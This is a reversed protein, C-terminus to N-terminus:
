PNYGYTRFCFDQTIYSQWSYGYYKYLWGLSYCDSYSKGWRYYHNWSSSKTKLILYYTNGSNLEFDNIDFEIWDMSGSICNVSVNYTALDPGMLSSRVSLSLDDTPNGSKSVFLEIKTLIDYSPKFSQASKYYSYIKNYSQFNEQKQDLLETDTIIDMTKTTFNTKGQYDESILKVDFTGDEYFCHVPDQLDSFYGDGFDWTWSVIDQGNENSTDLFQIISSNVPNSPYYSYDVCVESLDKSVVPFFESRNTPRLDITGTTNYGFTKFCFDKTYYSQWNYGRYKYMLGPEYFNSYTNGWSYYDYWSNSNTKIVIYYTNGCIVDFDSIDFEVWGFFNSIENAPITIMALDPGDLSSRICLILDDYPIGTKSLYLNINTLTDYSPTFSQALFNSGHLKESSQFVAQEQDLNETETFVNL